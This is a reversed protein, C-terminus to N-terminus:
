GRRNPAALAAAELRTSAKSSALEAVGQDIFQEAVARVIDYTVGMELDLVQVFNDVQRLMTIRVTDRAM